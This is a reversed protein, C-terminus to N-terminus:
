IAIPGGNVDCGALYTSYWDWFLKKGPHRLLGQYATWAALDAMQMWQSTHSAQFLPDEIISRTALKLDRHAQHYNPDSGDGDMFIMGLEGASTLKNDIHAVLDAYVAQREQQYARGRASTQRYVTGVRLIGSGQIATLADQMIQRGLPKSNNVAPDISPRGRGNAIKTAHLENSPPIKYKVYLEKRLDLWHRLGIRWDVPATEIWSYVVYGTDVSGSDDIYFMRLPPNNNGHSTM